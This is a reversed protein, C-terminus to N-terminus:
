KKAAKKAKIQAATLKKCYTKSVVKGGALKVKVVHCCRNKMAEIHKQGLLCPIRKAMKHTVPKQSTKRAATKRATKRAATKRATKRAVRKAANKKVAAFRVIKRKPKRSKVRFTMRKTRKAM